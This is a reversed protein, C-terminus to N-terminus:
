AIRDGLTLMELIAKCGASSSHYCMIVPGNRTSVFGKWQHLETEAAPDFTVWAIPGGKKDPYLAFTGQSEAFWKM